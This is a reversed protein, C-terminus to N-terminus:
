TTNLFIVVAKDRNFLKAVVHLVIKHLEWVLKPFVFPFRQKDPPGQALREGPHFTTFSSDRSPADFNGEYRMLTLNVCVPQLPAKLEPNQRQFLLFFFTLFFLCSPKIQQQSMININLWRLAAPSGWSIPLRVTLVAKYFQIQVCKISFLWKVLYM